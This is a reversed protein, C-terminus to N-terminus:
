ALDLAQLFNVTIRATVGWLLEGDYPLYVIVGRGSETRVMEQRHSGDALWELPITFVRGVEPTHVKFTYPWPIIGVVPPEPPLVPIKKKPRVIMIKKAM